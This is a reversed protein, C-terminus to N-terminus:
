GQDNKRRLFFFVSMVSTMVVTSQILEKKWDMANGDFLYMIGLHTVVGVVIGLFLRPIVKM